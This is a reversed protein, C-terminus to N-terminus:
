LVYETRKIVERKLADSLWNFRTSYGGIRVILHEYDQPRELAALLEAHDLVSIQVQLGGMKFYAEALARLNNVL